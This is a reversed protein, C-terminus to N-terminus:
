TKKQSVSYNSVSLCVFTPNFVVEKAFTIFKTTYASLVYIFGVYKATIRFILDSQRSPNDKNVLFYPPLEVSVKFKPLVAM